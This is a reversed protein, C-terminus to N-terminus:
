LRVCRCLNCLWFLWVISSFLFSFFFFFFRVKINFFNCTFPSFFFGRVADSMFACDPNDVIPSLTGDYDLFLAIRKGKAHDTIKEFSAIASPYEVQSILISLHLSCYLYSM